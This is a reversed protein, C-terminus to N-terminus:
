YRNWEGGPIWWATAPEAVAFETLEEVIDVQKLAAQEPFEYRFGVGDDFVRFVVTIARQQGNRERLSVRQETCRNRVFRREGWPQEWTEDISKRDVGAFEFNRELKPAEALIFGLRSWDIVTRGSRVISYEPRGEGSVRLSVATKGDPSRVMADSAVSADQANAIGSLLLLATLVFRHM